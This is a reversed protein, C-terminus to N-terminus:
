FQKLCLSRVRISETCTCYETVTFYFTAVKRKQLVRIHEFKHAEALGSTLFELSCEFMQVNLVVPHQSVKQPLYFVTTKLCFWGTRLGLTYFSAAQDNTWCTWTLLSESHNPPDNVSWPSFGTQSWLYTFM